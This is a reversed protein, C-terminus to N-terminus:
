NLNRGLIVSSCYPIIRVSCRHHVSLGIRYLYLKSKARHFLTTDTEFLTLQYWGNKGRGLLWNELPHEDEPKTEQRPYLSLNFVTQYQCTTIFSWMDERKGSSIKQWLMESTTKSYGEWLQLFVLCFWLYHYTYLTKTQQNKYIVM